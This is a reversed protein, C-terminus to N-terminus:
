PRFGPRTSSHFASDWWAVSERFGAFLLIGTPGSIEMENFAELVEPIQATETNSTATATPRLTIEFSDDMRGPM